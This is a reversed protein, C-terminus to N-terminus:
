IAAGQLCLRMSDKARLLKVRLNAVSFALMDSIQEYSFGNERYTLLERSENNLKKLCHHVRDSIKEGEEQDILDTLHNEDGAIEPEEEEIFQSETIKRHSDTLLNKMITIAWPLVHDGKFQSKRELIKQYTNQVLDEARDVDATIKRAYSTLSRIFSEEIIQEEFSAM